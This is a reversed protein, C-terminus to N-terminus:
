FIFFICLICLSRKLIWQWYQFDVTCTVYVISKWYQCHVFFSFVFRLFGLQAVAQISATTGFNVM